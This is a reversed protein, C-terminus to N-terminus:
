PRSRLHSKRRRRVFGLGFLGGGLLTLSAPEPVEGTVTVNPVSGATISFDNYTVSEQGTNGGNDQLIFVVGTLDAGDYDTSWILNGDYYGSLLDGVDTIEFTGSTAGDADTNGNESSGNWVHYENDNQFVDFFTTNDSFIPHLEVQQYGNTNGFSVNSFSVQFSFNGTINGGLAALNLSLGIYQIDGGVAAAVTPQTQFTIGNPGTSYTYNDPPENNLYSLSWYTPDIGNELSDTFTGALAPGAAALGLLTGAVTHLFGKM